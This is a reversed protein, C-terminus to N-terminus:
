RRVLAAPTDLLRAHAQVIFRVDSWDREIEINGLRISSAHHLVHDVIKPILFKKSQGLGTYNFPRAIIIPLKPFINALYEMALKSVSYDNM